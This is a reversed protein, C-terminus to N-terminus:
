GEPTAPADSSGAPSAVLPSLSRYEEGPWHPRGGRDKLAKVQEFTEVGWRRRNEAEYCQRLLKEDPEHVELEETREIWVRVQGLLDVAERAPLSRQRNTSMTDNTAIARKLQQGAFGWNGLMSEHFAIMSTVNHHNLWAAVAVALLSAVAAFVTLMYPSFDFLPPMSLLSGLITFLLVGVKLWKDQREFRAKMKRHYAQNMSIEFDLTWAQEAFEQPTM